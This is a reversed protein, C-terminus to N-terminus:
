VDTLREPEVQESRFQEAMAARWYALAKLVRPTAATSPEIVGTSFNILVDGASRLRQHLEDLVFDGDVYNNFSLFSHALNHIASGIRKYKMAVARSGYAVVFAVQTTDGSSMDACCRALSCARM